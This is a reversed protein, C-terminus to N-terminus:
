VDGNMDNLRIGDDDHVSSVDAHIIKAYKSPDTAAHVIDDRISAEFAPLDTSEVSNQTGALSLRVSESAFVLYAMSIRENFQRQIDELPLDNPKYRFPDEIERAVEHLSWYMLGITFCMVCLMPLSIIFSAMVLPTFVSFAVLLAVPQHPRPAFSTTADAIVGHSPRFISIM